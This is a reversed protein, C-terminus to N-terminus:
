KEAVSSNKILRAGRQETLYSYVWDFFIFVRNRFLVLFLLHVLCWACWAIFGTIRIKGFELIAKSKGITAMSGKDMYHFPNRKGKPLRKSIITAVYKGQQAAVPALGPLTREGDQFCAADGIVYIDPHGKISCDNQIIARQMRDLEIDLSNLIPNAKNGAAWVINKTPIFDEGVLVGNENIDKVFSNLKVIVGLSELDKKSKESLTPHFTSLVRDGGEILYIKSTKPDINSFNKALTKTAIEAIAGAMEVGTPGAGIVVFTTLAEIKQQDSELESKEFSKLVNERIRLADDLSKLGPAYQEWQDNGFYSHRAGTAVILNDFELTHLSKLSLKKEEKSIDLVEDMIITISPYKKLIERVPTAIDAPSLGATAVQYLLPQFLHHNTKDILLVEQNKKGLKIAANLGGFGAGIIITSFKKKM